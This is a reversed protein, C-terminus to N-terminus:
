ILKLILVIFFIIMPTVAAIISAPAENYAALLTFLLECFLVLPQQQLSQLQGPQL